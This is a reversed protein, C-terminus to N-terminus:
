IIPIARAIICKEEVLGMAAYRSDFSADSTGRLYIYGEPIIGISAGILRKGDKTTKKAIGVSQGNIFYENNRESVVDGAIGAVQKITDKVLSLNTYESNKRKFLVYQGNIIGEANTLYFLRPEVSNTLTIRIPLICGVFVVLTFIKYFLPVNRLSFVM